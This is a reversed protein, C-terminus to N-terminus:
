NSFNPFEAGAPAQANQVLIPHDDVQDRLLILKEHRKGEPILGNLRRMRGFERRGNQSDNIISRPVGLAAANANRNPATTLERRKRPKCLNLVLM